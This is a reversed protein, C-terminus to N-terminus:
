GHRGRDHETPELFVDICPMLKQAKNALVRTGSLAPYADRKLPDIVAQKPLRRGIKVQISWQPVCLRLAPKDTVAYNTM